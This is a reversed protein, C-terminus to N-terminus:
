FYKIKWKKNQKCIFKLSTSINIENKRNKSPLIRFNKQAIFNLNVFKTWIYTKCLIYSKIIIAKRIKRLLTFNKRKLITLNVAFQLNM